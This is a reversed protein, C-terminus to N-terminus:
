FYIEERFLPYWGIGFAHTELEDRQNLILFRVPSTKDDVSFQNESETRLTFGSRMKLRNTIDVSSTELENM